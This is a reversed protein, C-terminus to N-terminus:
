AFISFRPILKDADFHDVFMMAILIFMLVLPILAIIWALLENVGKCIMNLIWTWVLVYLIKIMFITIVSESSCSQMGVCYNQGTMLNQVVMFAIIVVSLILYFFAPPCLNRLGVVEMRILIYLETIYKSFYEELSASYISRKNVGFTM